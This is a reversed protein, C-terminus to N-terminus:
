KENPSKDMFFNADADTTKIRKAAAGAQACRVAGALVCGPDIGAVTVGVGGGANNVGGAGTTSGAVIVGGAVTAGGVIECGVMEEAVPSILAM